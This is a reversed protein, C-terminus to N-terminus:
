DTILIHVPGDESILFRNQKILETVTRSSTGIYIGREWELQM